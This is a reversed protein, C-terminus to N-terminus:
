PIDTRATGRPSSERDARAESPAHEPAHPSFAPAESLDLSKVYKSSGLYTRVWAPYKVPEAVITVQSIPTMQGLYRGKESLSHGSVSLSEPVQTPEATLCGMFRVIIRGTGDVVQLRGTGLFIDSRIVSERSCRM